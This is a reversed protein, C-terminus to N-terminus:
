FGEWSGGRRGYFYREEGKNLVLKPKRWLKNTGLQLQRGNGLLGKKKKKKSTFYRIQKESLLELSSGAKLVKCVQETRM